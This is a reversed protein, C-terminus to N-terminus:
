EEELHTVDLGPNERVAAEDAGSRDAYGEGSESVLLDPLNGRLALKRWRFEGAEDEYVELRHDSV